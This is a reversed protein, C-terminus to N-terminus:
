LEGERKLMRLSQRFAEATDARDQDNHVASTLGGPWMALDVGNVMMALRLKQM